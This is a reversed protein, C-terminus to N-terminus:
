MRCFVRLPEYKPRVELALSTLAGAIWSDLGHIDGIRVCKVVKVTIRVAISHIPPNADKESQRKRVYLAGASILLLAAVGGSLLALARRNRGAKPLEQGREAIAAAEAGNIPEVSVLLRYGRKPITQIIRPERVDDEFVRRLESISRKIGDETVFTDPWVTQLLEEKSVPEGAHRALCVLVDMVKPELCVTTGNRSVTNLQPEIVWTGIRFGGAM